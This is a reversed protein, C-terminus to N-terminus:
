TKSRMSFTSNCGFGMVAHETVRLSLCFRERIKYLFPALQDQQTALTNYAQRLKFLIKLTTRKPVKM